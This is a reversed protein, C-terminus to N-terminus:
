KRVFSCTESDEDFVILIEGSKLQNRISEIKGSLPDDAHGHIAGDRTVFEEILADLTAPALQEFPIHVNM